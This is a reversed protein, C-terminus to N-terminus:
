VLTRARTAPKVTTVIPHLPGVAAAGGGRVGDGLGVVAKEGAGDGLGNGDGM